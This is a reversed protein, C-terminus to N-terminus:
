EIALLEIRFIMIADPPVPGSGRNGYGLAPPVIIRRIGGPRMGTVGEDFGAVVQGAGLRFSFEGSDFIRGDILWGTYAVTATQGAAVSDGSGPAIEEYYLGTATRTMAALDIQLSAAFPADEIAQPGAPDDGCSALFTATLPLLPLSRRRWSHSTMQTLRSGPNKRTQTTNLMPAMITTLNPKHMREHKHMHEHKHM